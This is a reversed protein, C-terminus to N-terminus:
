AVFDDHLIGLADGPPHQRNFEIACRKWAAAQVNLKGVVACRMVDADNKPHVSLTLPSVLDLRTLNMSLEFRRRLGIPKFLM